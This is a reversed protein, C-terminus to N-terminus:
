IERKEAVSHPKLLTHWTKMIWEMQKYVNLSTRNGQQQSCLMLECPLTLAQPLVKTVNEPGAACGPETNATEMPEADPESGGSHTSTKGRTKELTQQWKKEM